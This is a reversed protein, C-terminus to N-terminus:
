LDQKPNIRKANSNLNIAKSKSNTSLIIVKSKNTSPILTRSGNIARPKNTARPKNASFEKNTLIKAGSRSDTGHMLSRHTEM